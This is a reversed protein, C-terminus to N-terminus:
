AGLQSAPRDRVSGDRREVIGRSGARSGRRRGRAAITAAITAAATAITATTRSTERSSSPSGAAAARRRGGEVHRAPRDRHGGSGLQDPDRGAVGVRDTGEFGAAFRDAIAERDRVRALQREPEAVQPRGPAVPQEPDLEVAGPDLPHELEGVRAVDGDVAFPDPDEIALRFRSRDGDVRLGALLRSRREDAGVRPRDGGAGARDPDGVGTVLRDRLISGSVASVVPRGIWTPPRGVSM